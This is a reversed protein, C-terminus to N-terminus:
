KVEEQNKDNQHEGKSILKQGENRSLLKNTQEKKEFGEYQLVAKAAREDNKSM